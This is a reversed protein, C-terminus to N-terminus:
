TGRYVGIFTAFNEDVFQKLHIAIRQGKWEVVDNTKIKNADFYRVRIEYPQGNVIQRYEEARRGTMPKVDAFIKVATETSTVGGTETRTETYQKIEVLNRLRGAAIMAM